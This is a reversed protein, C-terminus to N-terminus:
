PFAIRAISLVQAVDAKGVERLIKLPHDPHAIAAHDFQAFESAEVLVADERHVDQPM